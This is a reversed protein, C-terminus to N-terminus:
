RLFLYANTFVATKKETQDKKIGSVKNINKRREFSALYGFVNKNQYRYLVVGLFHLLDSM